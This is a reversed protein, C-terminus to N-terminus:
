ESGHLAKFTKRIRKMRELHKRTVMFQNPHRVINTGCHIEGQLQHYMMDDVFHAVLGREASVQRIYNNFLPFYCDPVVLHNQLVLMNVVGPLIAKCRYLSNGSQSGTYLCPWSMVSFERDREGTVEIIKKKLKELNRNILRDVAENLKVTSTEGGDKIGKLLKKYSYANFLQNNRSPGIQEFDSEKANRIMELAMAPDAKVITYGGPAKPNPCFSLYEDVHGVGLWNSELVVHNDSYGYRLLFRKFTSTIKDGVVLINDPTVEINGGYDGKSYQTSPNKIYFCNWMDALIKPLKALERGRNSDLVTLQEEGFGQVKARVIEGWDQQWPDRCVFNENLEVWSQWNNAQILDRRYRDRGYTTDAVLHMKIQPYKGIANIGKVINLIKKVFSYNGGHVTVIVKKPLNNNSLLHLKEINGQQIARLEFAQCTSTLSFLLLSFIFSTIILCKNSIKLNKNM